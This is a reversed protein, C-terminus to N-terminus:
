CLYGMLSAFVIRPVSGLISEFAEQHQWGDASPIRIVLAFVLSMVVNALFGVQIVIRSRAYGRVETLVDGLIYTMPFLLVSGGFIFPGLQFFKQVIINSLLLVTVFLSCVIIFANNSKSNM